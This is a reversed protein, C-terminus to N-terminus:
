KTVLVGCGAVWWSAVNLQWSSLPSGVPSCRRRAGDIVNRVTVSRKLVGATRVSGMLESHLGPVLREDRVRELQVVEFDDLGFLVSTAEQM